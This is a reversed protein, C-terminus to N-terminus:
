RTFKKDQPYAAMIVVQIDLQMQVLEELSSKQSLFVKIM